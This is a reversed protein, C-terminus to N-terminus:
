VSSDCSQGAADKLVLADNIAHDGSNLAVQVYEYVRTTWGARM